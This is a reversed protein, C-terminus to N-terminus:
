NCDIFDTVGSSASTIRGDSGVTVTSLTYTGPTVGTSALLGDIRGAVIRRAVIEGATLVRKVNFNTVNGDSGVQGAINQNNSM